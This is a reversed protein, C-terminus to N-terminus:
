SPTRTNQANHTNHTTHRHCKIKSEPIGCQVAAHGGASFEEIEDIAQGVQKVKVVVEGLVEALDRFDLCKCVCM